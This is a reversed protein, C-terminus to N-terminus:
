RTFEIGVEDLQSLLLIGTTELGQATEEVNNLFDLIEDPDDFYYNHGKARQLVSMLDICKQQMKRQATKLQQDTVTCAGM